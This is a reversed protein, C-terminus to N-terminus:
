GLSSKPWKGRWCSISFDGQVPMREPAMRHSTLARRPIQCDTHPPAMADSCAESLHALQHQMLSQNISIRNLLASAEPIGYHDAPLQSLLIQAPAPPAAPNPRVSTVITRSAAASASASASAAICESHVSAAPSHETREARGRGAANM